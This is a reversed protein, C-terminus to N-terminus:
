PLILMVSLFRNLNRATRAEALKVAPIISPIPATPTSTSAPGAPAWVAEHVKLPSGGVPKM